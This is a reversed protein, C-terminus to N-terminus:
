GPEWVTMAQDIEDRVRRFVEFQQEPTGTAAAPDDFPMFQRTFAGAWARPCSKNANDCVIILHKISKDNIFPALDKAKAHAIDIGFELMARIAMPHVKDKPDTGASHVDFRSGQHKRLLAEAM